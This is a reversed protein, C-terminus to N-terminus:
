KGSKVKATVAATLDTARPDAYVILSRLQAVRFDFVVSYGGAKAVSAVATNVRSALPAFADKLQRDFSQSDSQYKKLAAAYASREAATARSATAKTQLATVNKAAVKLAADARKSVAEFNASGPVSAVVAQVNVIGVKHKSSQAHPQLAFLAVPALLLLKKM